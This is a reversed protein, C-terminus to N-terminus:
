NAQNEIAANVIKLVEAKRAMKIDISYRYGNQDWTISAYASNCNWGCVPPLYYGRLGNILTVAGVEQRHTEFSPVRSLRTFTEEYYTSLPLSKETIIKGSYSAQKLQYHDRPNHTLGISYGTANFDLYAYLTVPKSSYQHIKAADPPLMLQITTGRLLSAACPRFVPDVIKLPLQRYADSRDDLCGRRSDEIAQKQIEKTKAEAKAREAQDIAHRDDAERLYMAFMSQRETELIKEAAIVSAETPQPTRQALDWAFLALYILGGVALTSLSKRM